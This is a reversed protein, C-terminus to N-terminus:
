SALSGPFPRKTGEGEPLVQGLAVKASYELSVRSRKSPGARALTKSSVRM